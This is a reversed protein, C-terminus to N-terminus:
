VNWKWRCDHHDYGPKTLGLTHTIVSVSCIQEPLLVKSEYKPAAQNSDRGFCQSDQNFKTGEALGHNNSEWMREPEKKVEYVV